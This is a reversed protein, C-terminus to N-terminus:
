SLWATFLRNIMENELPALENDARVMQIAELIFKKRQEKNSNMYFDEAARDFYEGRDVPKVREIELDIFTIDLLNGFNSTIFDCLRKKEADSTTGDALALMKLMKYGALNRNKEADAM